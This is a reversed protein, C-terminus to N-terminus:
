PSGGPTEMGRLLNIAEDVSGNTLANIAKRKRDPMGSLKLRAALAPEQAAVIGKAMERTAKLSELLVYAQVAPALAKYGEAEVLQPLVRSVITGMQTAVLRDAVPDGASQFYEGRTIGLRDIEAEVPNKAASISVGTLQRFGSSERVLPGERLPSRAEPMSDKVVPLNRMAPGLNVPGVTPGEAGSRIVNQNADFEALFDTVTNFPVTFSSLFNGALDRIAREGKESMDLGAVGDLLSDLIYAGTGARMQTSLLGTAIDKSSMKDLTGDQKRKVLDAIFLYSAFPNFPRLDVTRGDELKAEYWKEGAYESNRFQHAALLLGTGITARSIASMDGAAVQARETPSLLRLYGMPSWEYQFKIANALFRPFPIAITAGPLDNVIKIMSGALGEAGPAFPSFTKSFTLELASSVAAEVAERPIEGIANRAVIDDISGGRQQLEVALRSQFVARRVIYEQTRNVVNLAQVATEAKGFMGTHFEALWTNMLRDQQKPFANLIADVQEKTRLPRVINVLSGFADIPHAERVGPPLFVRRLADDMGQQLTDLGVRGVQTELNRAATALQTVMLGRRVNDVRKWWNLTRENSGLGSAEQLVALDAEAGPRKALANLRQEVAALSQMDQAAKRINVRWLDAFDDPTLKHKELVAGIQETTLRKTQLLEMIQDSILRGEVRQVKGTVLLESAADVVNKSLPQSIRAETLPPLPADISGAERKGLAMGEDLSAALQRGGNVREAAPLSDAAAAVKERAAARYAAFGPLPVPAVGTVVGAAIALGLLDRELRDAMAPDMGIEKSTQAVAAAGGVIPAMLARLVADGAVSAGGIVVKNFTRVLALPGEADEKTQNVLPGLSEDSAGLPASFLTGVAEGAAKLVRGPKSAPAPGDLIEDVSPKARALADHWELNGGDPAGDAIPPALVPANLVDDVNPQQADGLLEDVSPLETAM